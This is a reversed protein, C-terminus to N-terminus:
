RQMARISATRCNIPLGIDIYDCFESVPTAQGKYVHNGDLAAKRLQETNTDIQRRGPCQFVRHAFLGPALCHKGKLSGKSERLSIPSATAAISCNVLPISKSENRWSGFVIAATSRLSYTILSAATRRPGCASRNHGPNGHCSM